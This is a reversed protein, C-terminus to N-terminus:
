KKERFVIVNTTKNDVFGQGKCVLPEQKGKHIAIRSLADNDTTFEEFILHGFNIGDAEEYVAKTVKTGDEFKALELSILKATLDAEDSECTLELGNLSSMNAGYARTHQTAAM